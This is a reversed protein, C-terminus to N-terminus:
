STKTEQWWSWMNIKSCCWSQPSCFPKVPECVAEFYYNLMLVFLFQGGPKKTHKFEKRHLPNKRHPSFFVLKTVFCLVLNFFLNSLCVHLLGNDTDYCRVSDTQLLVSLQLHCCLSDRLLWEFRFHEDESSCSHSWPGDHFDAQQDPPVEHALRIKTM